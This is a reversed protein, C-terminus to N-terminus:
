GLNTEANIEEQTTRTGDVTFDTEISSNKQFGWGGGSMHMVWGKSGTNNFEITPVKGRPTVAGLELAGDVTTTIM